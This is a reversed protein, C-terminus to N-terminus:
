FLLAIVPEHKPKVEKTTKGQTKRIDVHIIIAAMEQSMCQHIKGIHKCMIHYVCIAHLKKHLFGFNKLANSTSHGYNLM